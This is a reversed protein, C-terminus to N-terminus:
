DPVIADLVRIWERIYPPCNLLRLGEAECMRLLRVAELDVVTVDELDLVVRPTDGGIQAQLEALHEGDIRGSLRLIRSQGDSSVDIKLTLAPAERKPPSM